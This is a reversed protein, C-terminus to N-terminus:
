RTAPGAGGAKGQRWRRIAAADAAADCLLLEKLRAKRDPAALELLRRSTLLPGPGPPRADVVEGLFLTRDGTDLAAEVRCELWGAADELVPSGTVGGRVALGALKDRDRGSELGFRWVWDLHEEGLLHAAFAGAANVLAWTHHQKALGVLLRPLEAPLSAQSVFTAVLGGRRGAAGATIVWLERDLRAFLDAANM